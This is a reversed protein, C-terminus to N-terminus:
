SKKEEDRRKLEKMILAYEHWWETEIERKSRIRRYPARLSAIWIKLQDLHAKLEENSRETINNM